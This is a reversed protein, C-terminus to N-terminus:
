VKHTLLSREQQFVPAPTTKTIQKNNQHAPQPGMLVAQLKTISAAEAAGTEDEEEEEENAVNPHEAEAADVLAVEDEAVRVIVPGARAKIAVVSLQVQEEGTAQSGLGPEKDAKATERTTTVLGATTL